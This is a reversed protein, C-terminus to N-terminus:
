QNKLASCSERIVLETPMLIKKVKHEQKPDMLIMLEKVADQAMKVLPQRVTTLSVPGYLGSPNDDFGVVSLDAPIKLGSEMAVTMVELAMSDSAVFIATPRDPMKILKEAAQRAQGRSYDTEIIYEDRVPIKNKKLAQKYGELRQLAAQTIMDGSIHAIKKHGLDILYEVAKAAGSQNDLALCTVELDRVYNNIVVLPISNSFAEEVQHRNSIIDAFIIGGVGKQNFSLKGDIIHLLLDLKLAECLTGIGRILELVYFSYFMGEYRPIVLAVVNSRGTALRQAFVSPQFKLQKVADLVKIRHSEKVSSFKNIVRSVTSISVGALRAVDKISINKSNTKKTRTM